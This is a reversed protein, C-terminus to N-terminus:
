DNLTEYLEVTEEQSWVFRDKEDGKEESSERKDCTGDM